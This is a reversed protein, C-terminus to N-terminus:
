FALLLQQVNSSGDSALCGIDKREDLIREITEGMATMHLIRAIAAHAKLLYPNPAPTQASSQLTVTSSKILTKTSDPLNPYTMIRYTNVVDQPCIIM